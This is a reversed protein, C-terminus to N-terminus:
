FIEAISNAETSTLYKKQSIAFKKRLYRRLIPPLRDIMSRRAQLIKPFSFTFQLQKIRLNRHRNFTSNILNLETQNVLNFSEPKLAVLMSLLSQDHRHWMLQPPKEYGHFSDPRLYEPVQCLDRWEEVVEVLEPQPRFGIAGAWVMPNDHLSKPFGLSDLVKPDIWEGIKHGPLIWLNIRSPDLNKEFNEKSKTPFSGADFYFIFDDSQLNSCKQLIIQPKWVWYGSGRQFELTERNLLKFHDALNEYTFIEFSDFNRHLSVTGLIKACRAFSKSAYTIGHFKLLTGIKKLKKPSAYDHGATM